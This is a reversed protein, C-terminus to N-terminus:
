NPIRNEIDDRLLVGGLEQEEQIAIVRKFEQESEITFGERLGTLRAVHPSLYHAQEQFFIKVRYKNQTPM